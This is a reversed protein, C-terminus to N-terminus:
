SFGLFELFQRTVTASQFNRSVFHSLAADDQKKALNPEALYRSVILKLDTLRQGVSQRKVIFGTKGDIVIGRRDHIDSGITAVACVAAEIFIRPIGEGYLTPLCVVDCRKILDPM